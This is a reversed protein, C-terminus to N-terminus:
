QRDTCRDNRCSWKWIEEGSTIWANKGSSYKLINIYIKKWTERFASSFVNNHWLITVVGNYREVEDIIQKATAWAEAFSDSAGFLTGDMIILPIEVLDIEKGTKLSFPKFPHCMGNRCGLADNYGLTTDYKFGAEALLEWTVPVRFRLYHNRYGVVTRGLVKELRAKENQMEGLDACTYFGGHLGVEWGKDAIYGLDSELEEIDYRHRRIDRDATMFYFSSKGGYAEEIKMIEKFNRYPSTHRGEVKWLLERRLKGLRLNRVHHVSSLLTHSLPPYIDDIDHSLMVAFKKGDPYEAKMGSDALYGSAVPRLIQKRDKPVYISRCVDERPPVYEHRLTYLDWMQSDKSLTDSINLRAM